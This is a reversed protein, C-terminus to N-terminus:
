LFDCRIGDYGASGDQNTCVDRCAAMFDEYDIDPDNDIYPQLNELWGNQSYLLTEDLPRIMMVDIDSGGAAMSVAIKNSAQENSFQQFEIKIGYEEELEDLHSMMTTSLVNDVGVVNLTVNYKRNGEEETGSEASETDSSNQPVEPAEEASSGCGALLSISLGLALLSGLRKKLKMM